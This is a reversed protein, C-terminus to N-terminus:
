LQRQLITYLVISNIRFRTFKIKKERGKWKKKKMIGGVIYGGCTLVLKGKGKKKKRVWSTQVDKHWIM